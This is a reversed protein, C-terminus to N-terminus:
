KGESMEELKLMISGGVGFIIGITSLGYTSGDIVLFIVGLIMTIVGLIIM